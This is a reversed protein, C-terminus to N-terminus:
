CRIYRIYCLLTKIPRDHWPYSSLHPWLCKQFKLLIYIISIFIYTKVRCIKMHHAVSAQISLNFQGFESHYLLVLSGQNSGSLTTQGLSHQLHSGLFAILWFNVVLKLGNSNRPKDFCYSFPCSFVLACSFEPM